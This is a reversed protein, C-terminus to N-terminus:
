RESIPDRAIWQLVRRLQELEGFTFEAATNPDSGIHITVAHPYEERLYRFADEDTQDDGAFLLSAQDGSAGLSRAVIAIATGKDVKVPPRIELIKKGDKVCLGHQATVRDVVARLYPVVAEDASRYHVSLTWVKNELWVGEMQTLLPELTRATQSVADAYRSVASDVSIQGDPDMLEAGHNGVTWVREVGVVSRADRAARGSVLVVFVGPRTALSVIARRTDDPVRALSPHAVIPALTGDVDLMVLLPRGAIREPPFPLDLEIDRSGGPSPAPTM